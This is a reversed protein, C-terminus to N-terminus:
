SEVIRECIGQEEEKEMNQEFWNFIWNRGRKFLWKLSNIKQDNWFKLQYM